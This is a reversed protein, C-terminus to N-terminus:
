EVIISNEYYKPLVYIYNCQKKYLFIFAKALYKLNLLAKITTIM